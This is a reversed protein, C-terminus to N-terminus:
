SFFLFERSYYYAKFSVWLSSIVMGHLVLIGIVKWIRSPISDTRLILYGKSFGVLLFWVVILLVFFQPYSIAHYDIVTDFKISAALFLGLNLAILDGLILIAIQKINNNRIM